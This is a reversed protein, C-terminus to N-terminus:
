MSITSWLSLCFLSPIVCLSLASTEDPAYIPKIQTNLAASAFVTVFV